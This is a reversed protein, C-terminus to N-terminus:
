VPDGLDTINKLFDLDGQKASRLFHICAYRVKTFKEPDLNLKEKIWQWQKKKVARYYVTMACTLQFEFEKVSPVTITEGGYIFLFKKLTDLNLFSMLEPIFSNRNSSLFMLAVIVIADSGQFCENLQKDLEDNTM